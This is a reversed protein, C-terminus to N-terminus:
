PCVHHADALKACTQPDSWVQQFCNARCLHRTASQLAGAWATAASTHSRPDINVGKRSSSCSNPSEGCKRATSPVLGSAPQSDARHRTDEWPCMEQRGPLTRCCVPSGPHRSLISPLPQYTAAWLLLEHSSKGRRPPVRGRVSIRRAWLAQEAPSTVTLPAAREEGGCGACLLLRSEQATFSSRGASAKHHEM